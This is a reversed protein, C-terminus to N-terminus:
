RMANVVGSMSVNSVQDQYYSDTLQVGKPTDSDQPLPNEGAPVVAWFVVDVQESILAAARTASDITVLEINKNIRKGIESLVATNFGAPTGDALILDLPPLDGTVGVKVTEAGDFKQMPISKPPEDLNINVIYEQTLKELTGDNKMSEIAKNMEERLVNEDDRLACCFNEYIAVTQEKVVFNKDQKKMYNAVSQYTSIENVQGSTLGLQMSNFNDYYTTKRYNKGGGHSAYFEETMKDVDASSVNLRTLMGVNQVEQTAQNTQSNNEEGCGTFLIGCLLIGAFFKKLM